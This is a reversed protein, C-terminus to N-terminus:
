GSRRGATEAPHREDRATAVASDPPLRVVLPTARAGGPPPGGPAPQRPPDPGDSGGGDDEDSSGVTLYVASLTGLFLALVFGMPITLTLDVKGQTGILLLVLFTVVVTVAPVAWVWLTRDDRQAGLRHELRRLAPPLWGLLGGRPTAMREM